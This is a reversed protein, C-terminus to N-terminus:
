PFQMHRDQRNEGVRFSIWAGLGTESCRIKRWRNASPGFLAKPKRDSERPRSAPKVTACTTRNPSAYLPM